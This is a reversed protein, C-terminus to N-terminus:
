SSSISTERMSEIFTAMAPQIGFLQVQWHHGDEIANRALRDAWTMRRHARQDRTFLQASPPAKERTPKLLEFQFQHHRLHRSLERRLFVAALDVWLVPHIPKIRPTTICRPPPETTDTPSVPESRRQRRVVTIRRGNTMGSGEAVCNDKLPCQLCTHRNISFSLLLAGRGNQRVDRRYMSHGAPCRLSRENEITFDQGAFKGNSRAWSEVVQMPEYQVSASDALPPHTKTAGTSIAAAPPESEAAKISEVEAEVAPQWLTQRM